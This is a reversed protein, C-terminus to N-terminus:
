KHEGRNTESPAHSTKSADPAGNGQRRHAEGNGNGHGNLDGNSYGNGDDVEVGNGNDHGHYDGLDDHEAPQNPLVRTAPRSLARRVLGLSLLGLVIDSLWRLRSSRGFARLSSLRDIVAFFIPTLFVGFITVGLMGSFVTTGLTRRMEAGAGSSLILPVVGLIFALSTMVIPRFRLRCADLAAERASVGEERRAKAFEVILIANKSALGVLVVFGIQTFINVDAHSIIVGTIASLLCMPVVLIVALPLSWSEYQAALVLFVMVVAFGFVYMATNGADLELKALETWETTMSGLLTESALRDVIQIAEGSSVGMAAAGNLPAAPYTNYRTLVLPGNKERVNAVTGLPVMSGNANRVKLRRVGEVTNRFRDDAQIVVQWTRGFRNFDNVYLSGLYIRMTDFLDKLAVEKVMCESRDVDVDLSPTNARFVSTMGVLEPHAKCEENLEETQGQLIGSGYDGRDEVMLKFGGARGVGRVPPPGLVTLMADPVQAEFRKRLENAVADGYLSPRDVWKGNIFDMKPQRIWGLNREIVQGKDNKKFTHALVWNKLWGEPVPRRQRIHARQSPTLIAPELVQKVKEGLPDRALRLTDFLSSALPQRTLTLIEGTKDYKTGLSLMEWRDNAKTALFDVRTATEDLWDFFREAVSTPREHYPKLIAFMSGFNSGNASLLMSQGTMTQTFKVGPTSRAIQEVRNMIEQTREQSASDPLQVNTLLYGMDQTPIFGTPTSYFGEYTLFLLGGYVILVGASVRLLKGVIGAYVGTTFKFMANFYRFLRALVWNLPWAVLLGCTAGLLVAIGPLLLEGYRISAAHERVWAAIGTRAQELIGHATSSIEASALWPTLFWWGLGGGVLLYFFWPLVENSAKETRPRLLIAALAPSLTLSNFASILTSAAITLAFQRFFQGVIGSIFACPVFVATLVLGIAIVPGSVEEMARITANRPTMGHEIHHEVAEVVVIADDVVIGIALVLGFLTLNNVSFGFVAMVAFTGIIAVPVAVLPIIASRWNQLFLLVVFAVLVVAEFLTKYVEHISERIYPTTDYRIEFQMGPPFSKALEKMKDKVVDAVDLANADPLQFIALSASPVGNVKCNIDQNKAGLEVRAIDKLRTLRGNNDAKVIIQEFQEVESLRGLTSLPIQIEQGNPAPQQGIQGAAVQTNQARVANAVDGANMSRAALEDPDLWIRMSYDRQGLMNVDSVGPLRAIEDKIQLVAYNSLYLQDYPVHGNKDPPSNIAVVLTIDPSKKRVNVGTQKLVDPLLPLALSVRNQVYVQAMNLNVGHKFTISLSYTGDNTCQSSMYLMNEVGNVQQEIPAAVTESVTQASAGPYNCDVQVTPPSIPPYQAVPLVTTSVLGALTIVISLVAAFIPRDIFFRSIV